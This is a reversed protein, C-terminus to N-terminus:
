EPGPATRVHVFGRHQFANRYADRRHYSEWGLGIDALVESAPRIEVAESVGDHNADTWLLLRSFLPNGERLTARLGGGLDEHMRLLAGFGTTAGPVTHKSFLERGSTILGDGNGDIALFAATSNPATWATKDADGDGDIDFFVGDDPSTLEYSADREIDVVIPTGVDDLENVSSLGAKYSGPGEPMTWSGRHGPAVLSAPLAILVLGLALAAGLAMAVRSRSTDVGSVPASRNM